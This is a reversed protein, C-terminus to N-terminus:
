LPFLRTHLASPPNFRPLRAILIDNQRLEALSLMCRTCIQLHITFERSEEPALMNDLYASLGEEVHECNM